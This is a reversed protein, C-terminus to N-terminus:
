IINSIYLCRNIPDMHISCNLLDFTPNVILAFRILFKEFLILLSCSFSFHAFLTYLSLDHVFSASAKCIIMFDLISGYQYDYTALPILIFTKMVILIGATMTQSFYYVWFQDISLTNTNLLSLELVWVDKIVFVFHYLEPGQM